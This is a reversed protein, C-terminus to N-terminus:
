RFHNQVHLTSALWGLTHTLTHPRIHTRAHSASRRCTNSGVGTTEYHRCVVADIDFCGNTLRHAHTHTHTHTHASIYTNNNYMYMYYVRHQKGATQLRKRRLLQRVAVRTGWPGKNAPWDALSQQILNAAICFQTLDGGFIPGTRRTYLLVSIKNRKILNGVAVTFPEFM